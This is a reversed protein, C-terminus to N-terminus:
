RQAKRLVMRSHRDQWRTGNKEWLVLYIDRAHSLAVIRGQTRNKCDTHRVINGVLLKM